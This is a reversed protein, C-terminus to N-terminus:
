IFQTLVAEDLPYTSAKTSKVYLDSGFMTITAGSIIGSILKFSSASYILFGLVLTFMISIKSNRPRHGDLNKEIVGQLKRDRRSCTMMLIKLILKEFHQYLLVCMFTLGVLIMILLGDFIVFFLQMKQNFFTLPVAYYTIFGVIILMLAALTQTVSLGM